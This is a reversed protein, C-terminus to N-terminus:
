LNQISQHVINAVIQYGADNLHTKDTLYYATDNEAGVTGIRTDSAVDAIVDAIANSANRIRTNLEQYAQYFNVGTPSGAGSNPLVTLLCVKFGKNRAASCYTQLNKFAQDVSAGYYLDNAAEWVVLINKNLKPHYLPLIQTAQDAIMNATTQGDVGYNSVAIKRGTTAMRQAVYDSFPRVVGFGRVLSNGDFILNITQNDAGNSADGFLIKDAILLPNTTYQQGNITFLADWVGRGASAGFYTTNTFASANGKFPLPESAASPGANVGNKRWQIQTNAPITMGIINLEFPDSLTLSSSRDLDNKLLAAIGSIPEAM